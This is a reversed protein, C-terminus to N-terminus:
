PLSVRQADEAAYAGPWGIDVPLLLWAGREIRGRMGRRERM